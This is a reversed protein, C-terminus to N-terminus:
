NNGIQFAAFSENCYNLSNFEVYTNYVIEAEGYKLVKVKCHDLASISHGVETQLKLFAWKRRLEEAVKGHVGGQRVQHVVQIQVPHEPHEGANHHSVAEVGEDEQGPFDVPLFVELEFELAGGPALTARRGDERSVLDIADQRDGRQAAQGEVGPEAPPPGVGSGGQDHSQGGQVFRALGPM